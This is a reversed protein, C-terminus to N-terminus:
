VKKVVVRNGSVEIVKIRTGKDLMEGRTVVDQRKKNLRAIGSPHLPTLAEGELGVLEDTVTRSPMYGAQDTKLAFFRAMVNKLLVLFIPLWLITVGILVFGAVPHETAFAYIICGVAVLLGITGLVGGPLFLEVVMALLGCTFVIFIGILSGM